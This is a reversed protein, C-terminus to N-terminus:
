AAARGFLRGPGWGAVPAGALTLMRWLLASNSSIVPVGLEAEVEDLIGFSRLNTCSTFVAEVGPSQAAEVIAARTSAETIRAVIREEKQGFSVNSVTKIGHAALAARMPRTIEEIYPSVLAIRRLGMDGLAAIVASLPDTVPVGPHAAQVLAAVREPGIVTAGSTCAYGVVDLGQPLLAATATMEAAMTELDEATVDARAPIRAHMLNVERGAVVQRAEYELTEDVSLLILGLRLGAGAGQDLEYTM